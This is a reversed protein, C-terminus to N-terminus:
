VAEKVPAYFASVLQELAIHARSADLAAQVSYVGALRKDICEQRLRMYELAQTGIAVLQAQSPNSILNSM